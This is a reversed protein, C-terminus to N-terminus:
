RKFFDKFRKLISIKTVTGTKYTRHFYGHGTFLGKLSAYAVVPTSLYGLILTYPVNIFDKTIEETVLAIIAAFVISSINIVTFLVSSFTSPPATASAYSPLVLLGGVTLAVVLISNLFLCGQFFFEIKERLTLFKSSLLKWFYKRFDRTHGEAWRATQTLFKTVTNSCEASATLTPDYVVKYGADYLRLTLDWDETLGGNFKMKKLINSRVMFVSGTLPLMLGLKHKANLEIMNNVSYMIRIGKTVWNEDANLDHLQYGQVAVITDDTFKSLFGELLDTPPVFDADLILVHTSKPNIYELGLNLAGGKWGSRSKRHLVKVHHNNKWKALKDISEDTSDDIVVVEYHPFNFSTCSKMLRDVVNEENYTPLLVSVFPDTDSSSAPKHPKNSQRIRLAIFSFLYYRAAYLFLIITEIFGIFIIVDVLQLM